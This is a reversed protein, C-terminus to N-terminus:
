HAHLVMVSVDCTAHRFIVEFAAHDPEGQVASSVAGISVNPARFRKNGAVFVEFANGMEFRAVRDLGKERILAKGATVNREDYDRLLIHDARLGNAFTEIVYRGHGAAIDAVRVPRGEERLRQASRRLLCELNQRRVRIGRWGIANLYLRDILRGLATVGGPQNCYVYDLTSGSDFGTKCGLRIGDSLRGGARIALRSVVFGWRKPSVLPLPQSLRGYEQTTFDSVPSAAPNIAFSRLIFSRARRIAFHRDKEGLTDHYWGPFEHKEKIRSGLLRFFERQPRKHVVLDSGSILLQTPTQIAPADEVIRDATSYLGLLVKASIPRTILPDANYSAIREPDHTLAKAKVYSRVHLDPLAVALLRLTSRAFPVYLRVKFAPAALVMCRIPPAYDHVWAATVVSGVSQALVGVQGLGVGHARGLHAIFEDLDRVFTGMTPRDSPKLPSRGHGRADWAFMAFDPLNLEDVIHQMRGSHEHGRHLLVLARPADAPEGTAPWYRYFLSTGDQTRFSHEEPLRM